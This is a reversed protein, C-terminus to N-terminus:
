KNLLLLLEVGLIVWRFNILMRRTLRGRTRWRDGLLTQAPGLGAQAPDPEPKDLRATQSPTNATTM